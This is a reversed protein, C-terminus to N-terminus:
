KNEWLLKMMTLLKCSMFSVTWFMVACIFWDWSFFTMMWQSFVRDLQGIHYFQQWSVVKSSAFCHWFAEIPWPACLSSLLAISYFGESYGSMPRATLTNALPGPSRPEIGPRTMGFVWFIPSSAEKSLM